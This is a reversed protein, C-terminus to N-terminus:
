VPKERVKCLPIQFIFYHITNLHFFPSILPEKRMWINYQTSEIHAPTENGNGCFKGILPSKNSNGDRIELFNLCMLHTSNYVFEYIDFEVVTINIYTSNPQSIEYICDADKPYIEPYLPSTLLGNPTTFNGGCAGRRYTTM